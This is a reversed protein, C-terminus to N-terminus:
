HRCRTTRLRVGKFKFHSHLPPQESGSRVMGKFSYRLPLQLLSLRLPNVELRFERLKMCHDQTKELCHSSFRVLFFTDEQWRIWWSRYPYMSIRSRKEIQSGRPYLKLSNSQTTFNLNKPVPLNKVFEM